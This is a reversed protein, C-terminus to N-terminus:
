SVCGWCFVWCYSFTEENTSIIFLVVASVGVWKGTSDWLAKRSFSACISLILQLYAVEASSTLRWASLWASCLDCGINLNVERTSVEWKCFGTCRPQKISALINERAHWTKWSWHRKSTKLSTWHPPFTTTTYRNTSLTPAPWSPAVKTPQCRWSVNSASGM